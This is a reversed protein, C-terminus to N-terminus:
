EQLNLAAHTAHVLADKHLQMPYLLCLLMDVHMCAHYLQKNRQHSQSTRPQMRIASMIAHVGNSEKVLPGQM